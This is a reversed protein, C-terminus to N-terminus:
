STSGSNTDLKILLGDVFENYVKRFPKNAVPKQERLSDVAINHKVAVKRVTNRNWGMIRAAKSINGHNRRLADEVAVREMLSVMEQFRQVTEKLFPPKEGVHQRFISKLELYTDNM